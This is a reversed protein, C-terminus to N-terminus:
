LLYIIIIFLALAINLLCFWIEGSFNFSKPKGSILYINRITLANVVIIIVPSILFLILSVSSSTTKLEHIGSLFTTGPNYSTKMLLMLIIFMPISIWWWSVVVRGKANMIADALLDNHKLETIEPKEMEMLKQEFNETKM